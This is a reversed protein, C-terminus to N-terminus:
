AEELRKKAADVQRPSFIQNQGYHVPHLGQADM